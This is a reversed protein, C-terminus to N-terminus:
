DPLMMNVLKKWMAYKSILGLNVSKRLCTYFFLFICVYKNSEIQSNNVLFVILNM